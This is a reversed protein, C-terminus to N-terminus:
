KVEEKTNIYTYDTHPVHFSQPHMPKIEIPLALFREHRDKWRKSDRMSESFICMIWLLARSIPNKRALWMPIPRIRVIRKLVAREAPTM